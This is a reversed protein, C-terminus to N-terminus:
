KKWFIDCMVKSKFIVDDEKMEVLSHSCIHRKSYNKTIQYDFNEYCLEWADWVSKDKSYKESLLVNSLCDQSTQIGHSQTPKRKRM